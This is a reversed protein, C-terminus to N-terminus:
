KKLFIETRPPTKIYRGTPSACIWIPGAPGRTLTSFAVRMEPHRKGCVKQADEKTSYYNRVMEPALSSPTYCKFNGSPLEDAVGECLAQAEKLNAVKLPETGGLSAYAASATFM